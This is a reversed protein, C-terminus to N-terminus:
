MQPSFICSLSSPPILSLPSSPKRGGSPTPQLQHSSPDSFSSLITKRNIYEEKRRQNGSKGSQKNIGKRGTM